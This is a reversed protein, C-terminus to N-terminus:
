TAVHRRQSPDKKHSVNACFVRKVYDNICKGSQIINYKKLDPEEACGVIEM